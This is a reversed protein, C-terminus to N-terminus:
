HKSIYTNIAQEDMQVTDWDRLVKAGNKEYFDIAPQNWDLVAWEIRKVGLSHGYKIVETFLMSGLGKGRMQERVVLDELHITPGKWTSYRPYILAIGEVRKNVEAVFCHFLVKEGFGDRVLDEATIAVANEENEFVALEYILSHVDPMDEKRADRVIIEM